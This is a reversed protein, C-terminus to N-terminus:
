IEVPGSQIEFGSLRLIGDSLAMAVGGPIRGEFKPSLTGVKATAEEPNAKQDQVSQQIELYEDVTIFRYYYDEDNITIKEVTGYESKWQDKQEQTVEIM